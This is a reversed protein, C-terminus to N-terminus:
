TSLFPAGQSEAMATLWRRVVKEWGFEEECLRRGNEGLKRALAPDDALRVISEALPKALEPPVVLGADAQALIDAMEGSGSYIVPVACALPPFTKSPRAGLHVIHDKLPVIAATAVSWWRPMETLPVPDFFIVNSLGLRDRQAILQKKVPGDGIFVLAIDPRNQLEQAADLLVPLGQAYGMLGAYIFISKERLGQQDLLKQDAVQPRFLDMDVGTPLFLIKNPSITKEEILVKRIGETVAGVWDASWYLFRELLGAMWFLFSSKVLGSAALSDPWLDAVNMVWRAGKMRALLLATVALFLPPSDVFIVDPKGMWFFSLFSTLCFSLYSILRPILSASQSPFVWTRFLPVGNLTEEFILRGRYGDFIRGTPYNPMATVVRVDHGRLKLESAFSCLLVQAGGVEPPYCQTLIVIKM